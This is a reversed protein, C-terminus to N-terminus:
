KRGRNILFVTGSNFFHTKRCLRAVNRARLTVFDHSDSPPTIATARARVMDIKQCVNAYRQPDSMDFFLTRHAGGIYVEYLFHLKM